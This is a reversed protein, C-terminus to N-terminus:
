TSERQPHSPKFPLAARRPSGPRRLWQMAYHALAAYLGVISLYNLFFGAASENFDWMDLVPLLFLKSGVVMEFSAKVGHLALALALGRLVATRATTPAGLGLSNRLASMVVSWRMGVHVSVILVIWHAALMHVQRATFGGDLSLFSFVSRSVLVSSVLLVLMALLLALTLVTHAVRAGDLPRSPISGYWRRNFVNHGVLLVFMALGLLEHTDNELWNYALGTLLLGASTGDFLLRLLWVKNVSRRM